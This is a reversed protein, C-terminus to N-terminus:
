VSEREIEINRNRDGDKDRERKTERQSKDGTDGESDRRVDTEM